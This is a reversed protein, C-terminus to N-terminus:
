SESSDLATPGQRNVEPATPTLDTNNQSKKPKFIERIDRYLAKDHRRERTFV